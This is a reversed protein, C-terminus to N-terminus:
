QFADELHNIKPKVTAVGDKAYVEIVDFRPQLDTPHSALYVEATIRLKNQKFEDVFDSAKAFDASKRTKVEVFVFVDKEKAIIDIEGLKTSYNTEIIKYGQKKLYKQAVIEGKAGTIKNFEKM